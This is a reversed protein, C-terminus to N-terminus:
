SGNGHLRLMQTSMAQNALAAGMEMAADCAFRFHIGGAIRALGVEALADSFSAYTRATSLAPPVGDSTVTFTTANGFYSALVTAAANSVGSHGSPYEQHAPTGLVPSWNADQTTALNGDMDANRIATIPRWTNFTNKANWVAIVADAMSTNLLAFFRANDVLKVHSSAALPEAARNWMTAV